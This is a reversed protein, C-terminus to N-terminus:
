WGVKKMQPKSDPTIPLEKGKKMVKALMEQSVSEDFGPGKYRLAQWKGDKYATIVMDYRYSFTGDELKVKEIFGHYGDRKPFVGKVQKGGVWDYYAEFTATEEEIPMFGVFEVPKATFYNVDSKKLTTNEKAAKAETAAVGTLPLALATLITFGVRLKKM